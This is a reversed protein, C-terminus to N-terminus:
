MHCDCLRCFGGAEHSSIHRGSSCHSVLSSGAKQKGFNLGDNPFTSATPVPSAGASCLYLCYPLSLSLRRSLVMRFTALSTSLVFYYNISNDPTKKANSTVTIKRTVADNICVDHCLVDDWYLQLEPNHARETPVNDCRNRQTYYRSPRKTGDM